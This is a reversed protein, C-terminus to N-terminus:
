PWVARQPVGGWAGLMVFLLAQVYRSVNIGHNASINWFTAYSSTTTGWATIGGSLWARSGAPSSPAPCAFADCGPAGVVDNGAICLKDLV